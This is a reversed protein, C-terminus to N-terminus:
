SAKKVDCSKEKCCTASACAKGGAHLPATAFTFVFLSALALSSLSRM